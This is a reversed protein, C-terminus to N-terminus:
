SRSKWYWTHNMWRARAGISPSAHTSGAGGCGTMLACAASVGHQYKSRSSTSDSIQGPDTWSRAEIMPRFTNLTAFPNGNCTHLIIPRVLEDDLHDAKDLTTKIAALRELKSSALYM